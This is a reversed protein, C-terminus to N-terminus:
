AVARAEAADGAATGAAAGAALPVRLHLVAGRGAGDSTAWIRGGLANIANACWHLGIGQNTERSKTSFGKEFVRELNEAPIGVGDDRCELQLQAPDSGDVIAASVRLHGQQRGADRVADAANIILNQLVLRLVTRPLRVVGVSRLTADPEIILRQRCADPVIELSQQLLETLRVPEIVQENRATRMQEALTNQVVTTQRAMVALDERAASVTLALEGCALRVFEELDAQRAPDDGGRKLEALAEGADEAPAKRLRDTLNAIRVGIPTMANGLNHLVGKALEAFGAQYSQDVLQTRSEAVRTVMRDFERALIGIEDRRSLDLRTTLDEDQGVAVAHRTVVALPGLVIRNLAWLLLVLISLAGAAMFAVSYRAAAYGRRTVDRPIDVRFTMVPHGYIDRFSRYIRTVNTSEILQEPGAPSEHTPPLLTLAAQAQASMRRVATNTLLQGMLVMGRTPGHLTGDLIPAGALMLVGLNTRLLGHAPEGSRLNAGWPFGAPLAKLRTFDLGLPHPSDLDVERSEIVKGDSAVILLTNIGLQRLGVDTVNSAVFEANHDIVFRYTDAWNGWDIASVALAGLSNELTYNIRRMATRADARELEAFGPIIVLEVVLVVGIGLLAFIGVLLAAVKSRIKM